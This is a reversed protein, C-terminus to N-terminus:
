LRIGFVDLLEVTILSIWFFGPRVEQKSFPPLTFKSTIPLQTARIYQQMHLHTEGACKLLTPSLHIYDLSHGCIGDVCLIWERTFAMLPCVSLCSPAAFYVLWPKSHEHWIVHESPQTKSASLDAAQSKKKARTLKKRKRIDEEVPTATMVLLLRLPCHLLQTGLALLYM